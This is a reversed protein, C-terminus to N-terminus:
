PPCYVGAEPDDVITMGNGTIILHTQDLGWGRGEAWYFGDLTVTEGVTLSPIMWASTSNGDMPQGKWLTIQGLSDWITVDNHREQITEVVLDSLDAAGINKVTIIFHLPTTCNYLYYTGWDYSPIFFSQNYPIFHYKSPYTGSTFFHIGAADVTTLDAPDLYQLTYELEPLGLVTVQCTDSATAGQNDTVTLTVTYEGDTSFSHSPSVGSGSLGDGFDWSYYSITGGVDYSGSGDFYMTDLSYATQDAGADAVPPENIITVLCTDTGTAGDDDTVTLTVTHTGSLAYSHEPSTGAGVSGDGFDWEHSIVTGDVDYSCGGEFIVPEGIDAVVDDWIITSVVEVEPDLFEFYFGSEVVHREAFYINLDHVGATLNVFGIEEELAHIGGLDIVMIDDIYLWSDDDSGMLFSYEGGAPVSINAQWHVAFYYPDGEMGEDVPFWTGGFTLDPDNREFSLYQADYWDHNFPNDGKVVGTVNGEVEPHDGPLNFYTGTYGTILEGIVAVPPQNEPTMVETAGIVTPTSNYIDNTSVHDTGAGIVLLSGPVVLCLALLVACLKDSNKNM